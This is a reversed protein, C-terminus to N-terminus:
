WKIDYLIDIIRNAKNQVKKIMNWSFDSEGLGLEKCEQSVTQVLIEGVRYWIAQYDAASIYKKVVPVTDYDERAMLLLIKNIEEEVDVKQTKKFGFM